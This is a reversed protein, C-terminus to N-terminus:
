ARKVGRPDIVVALVTDDNILRLEKGHVNVRTGSYPNFLIFDGEKCWPGTPFRKENKYADPGVKLVLGVVSAVQERHTHEEPLLIGGATKDEVDLLAILIHYGTPIPLTQARGAQPEAATVTETM